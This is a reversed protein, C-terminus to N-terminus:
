LQRTILSSARSCRHFGTQAAFSTSTPQIMLVISGHAPTPGLEGVLEGKQKGGEFPGQARCLPQLVLSHVAQGPQRGAESPGMEQPKGGVVATCISM